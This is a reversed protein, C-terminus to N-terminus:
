LISNLFCKLHNEGRVGSTIGVTVWCSLRTAAFDVVALSRGLAALDAPNSCFEGSM